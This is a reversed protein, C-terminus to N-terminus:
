KRGRGKAKAKEWIAECTECPGIVTLHGHGTEVQCKPAFKGQYKDAYSCKSLEPKMAAMEERLTQIAIRIQHATLPLKAGTLGDIMKNMVQIIQPEAPTLNPRNTDVM